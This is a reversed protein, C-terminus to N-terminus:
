VSASLLPVYRFEGIIRPGAQARQPGSGLSVSNQRRLQLERAQSPTITDQITVGPTMSLSTNRTHRTGKEMDSPPQDYRVSM